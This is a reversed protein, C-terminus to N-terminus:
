DDRAKRRPKVKGDFGRTLTAHVLRSRPKKEGAHARFRRKARAIDVADLATKIKNCKPCLAQLNDLEDAGTLELAIVHDAVWALGELSVGCGAGECMGNAQALVRARRAPTMAKRPTGHESVCEKHQM